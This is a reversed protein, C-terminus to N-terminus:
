NDVVRAGNVEDADAACRHGRYCRRKLFPPKGDSARILANVRRHRREELRASDLRPREVHGVERVLRIKDHNAVGDRAAVRLGLVRELVLQRVTGQRFQEFVLEQAAFVREHNAARVALGGGGGEEGPQELVVSEVGTKEDAADRVVKALARPEGVAFPTHELAVLVVGRKEVLAALEDVVQGLRHDDVVKLEVM